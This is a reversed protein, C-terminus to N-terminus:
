FKLHIYTKSTEFVKEYEEEEVEEEAGDDSQKKVLPPCTELYVRQKTETAGPQLLEDFSVWARGVIPKM